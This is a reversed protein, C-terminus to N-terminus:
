KQPTIEVQNIEARREIAAEISYISGLEDDLDAIVGPKARTKGYSVEEIRLRGDKLYPQFLGDRYENLFNRVSATRRYGLNLNYRAEARPSTFGEITITVKNGRKLERELAQAFNDLERMGKRVNDTFFTRIERRILSMEQPTLASQFVSEYQSERELYPEFTSLYSIDTDRRRERRGPIDNDFYVALPLYESLSKFRLYLEQRIKNDPPIVFTEITALADSYGDALGRLEYRKGPEIKFYFDNGEKNIAEDVLRPRAPDSLDYLRVNAGRLAEKTQDDFTMVELDIESRDLFLDKRIPDAQYWDHTNFAVTDPTYLAKNGIICYEQGPRLDFSTIHTDPDSHSDVLIWQNNEKRFLQVAVGPLPSDDLRDFTHVELRLPVRNVARFIDNCCSQLEPEIYKAGESERNSTLYMYEGDESLTFYTDHYGTNFPVPLSIPAGFQGNRFPSEFIDQGGMTLHGDSSFFLRQSTSHFFPSIEDGDTNLSELNTPMGWDGDEKIEVYWIDMKGKGGPADTVYFLVDRGDSLRGYSPQATSYGPANISEPLKTVNAWDYGVRDAQYIDCSFEAYNVSLCSSYYVRKRDPGFTVHALHRNGDQPLSAWLLREEDNTSYYIRSVLNQSFSKEIEIPFDLSSFYLTDAVRVGAFESYETNVGLFTLDLPLPRRLKEIALQASQIERESTAPKDARIQDFRRYLQIAENYKGVTQKVSALHYIAQPYQLTSDAEVVHSYYREALLYSNYTRAAEAAQFNVELDEPWADAVTHLYVLAAHYNKQQQAQEAAVLFQKKTQAQAAPACWFIAILLFLHRLQAKMRM